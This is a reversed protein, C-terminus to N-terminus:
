EDDDDDASCSKAGPSVKSVVNTLKNVASAGEKAGASIQKGAARVTDGFGKAILDQSLELYAKVVKEADEIRPQPGDDGSTAKEMDAIFLAPGALPPALASPGGRTHPTGDADRQQKWRNPQSKEIKVEGEDYSFLGSKNLERRPKPSWWESM